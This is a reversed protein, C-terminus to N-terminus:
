DHEVEGRLHHHPERGRRLLERKLLTDDQPQRLVGFSTVGARQAYVVRFARDVARIRSGEGDERSLIVLM